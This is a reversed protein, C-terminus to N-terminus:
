SRVLGEAEAPPSQHNVADRDADTSFGGPPIRYLQRVYAAHEPANADLRRIIEDIAEPAYDLVADITNLIADPELARAGGDARAAVALQHAVAYEPEGRAMAGWIVRALLAERALGALSLGSTAAERECLAYFHDPMRITTKRMEAM